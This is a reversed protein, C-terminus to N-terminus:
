QIQYHIPFHFRDLTVPGMGNLDECLHRAAYDIERDKFRRLTVELRGQELQVYGAREVIMALAPLVEKEWDYHKLLLRCLQLRLNQAFVKICDLFRKKEHNLKLLKEGDHAEPFNIERPLKGLEQDTLLISSEVVAISELM